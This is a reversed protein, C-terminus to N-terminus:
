DGEFYEGQSLVCKSWREKWAQFCAQFDTISISRLQATANVKIAETDEFRRGKLHRKLRPFLFFDNPSLDPSYPPHRLQPIGHKALFNQVLHASHPPANDHHLHWDGSSWKTPRKRRVADRLRRLVELYYEKNVTQGDPAYEFHVVGESDFFVTLMVKVKSRSQRAKKPRPSSPTKWVSSQVKTEPDYGYVWTEDGTIIKTLFDPDEEVCQLLDSSGSLRSQKQDDTLLRPVFKAAVRRMGLDQTLISHCSGISINLDDSIERVTLRRDEKVLRQVVEITENNPRNVASM